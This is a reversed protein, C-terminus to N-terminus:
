SFTSFSRYGPHSAGSCPRGVGAKPVPGPALLASGLVQRYGAGKSRPPGGGVQTLVRRTSFSAAERPPVRNQRGPGEPGATGPRARARHLPAPAEYRRRQLRAARRDRVHAASEARRTRSRVAEVRRRPFQRPRLPGRCREGPPSMATPRHRSPGGTLGNRMIGECAAPTRSVEVREGTRPVPAPEVTWKWRRPQIRLWIALLSPLIKQEGTGTPAPCRSASSQSRQGSVLPCWSSVPPSGSSARSVCRPHM